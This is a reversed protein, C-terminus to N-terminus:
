FPVTEKDAIALPITGIRAMLSAGAQAIVSEVNDCDDTIAPKKKWFLIGPSIIKRFNGSERAYSTAMRYILDPLPIARM